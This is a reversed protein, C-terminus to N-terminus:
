YEVDSEDEGTGGTPYYKGEDLNFVGIQNRKKALDLAQRKDRVLDVKDIYLVGDEVWGGFMPPPEEGSAYLSDLFGILAARAAKRDGAPAKHTGPRAVATGGRDLLQQSLPDFTFGGAEAAVSMSDLTESSVPNSDVKLGKPWQGQSKRRRIENSVAQTRGRDEGSSLLEGLESMLEVAKMLRVSRMHSDVHVIKGSKSVRKYASVRTQRALMVLRDVAEGM